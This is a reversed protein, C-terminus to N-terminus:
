EKSFLNFLLEQQEKTPLIVGNEIRSYTPVDINHGAEKLRTVVERQKMGSELRATKLADGYDNSDTFAHIIEREAGFILRIQGDTLGKKAIKDIRKKKRWLAAYQNKLYRAFDEKSALKIGKSSSIVIKQVVDSANIARIDDTMLHRAHTDHFKSPNDWDGYYEGDSRQCVYAAVVYQMTWEDGREKLYNYLEWQRANLEM